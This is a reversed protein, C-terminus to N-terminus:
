KHADERGDGTDDDGAEGMCGGHASPVHGRRRGLGNGDSQAAESM